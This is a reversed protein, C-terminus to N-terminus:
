SLMTGELELKTLIYGLLERRLAPNAFGHPAVPRWLWALAIPPFPPTRRHRLDTEQKYLTSYPPQFEPLSGKGSRQSCGAHYEPVLNGPPKPLAYGSYERHVGLDFM